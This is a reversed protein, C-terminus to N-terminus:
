FEGNALRQVLEEDPPPVTLTALAGRPVWRMDQGQQPSPEDVLTCRFFHLEVTRDPYRYRTVHMEDGVTVLAALEEQMERRLCEAPTETSECTGGPFEWYGALHTGPIRRTMLVSGDRIVVAAAVRVVPPDTRTTPAM